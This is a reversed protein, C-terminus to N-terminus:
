GNNDDEGTEYMSDILNFLDNELTDSNEVSPVKEEQIVEEEKKVPKISNLEKEIDDLIQLTSTKEMEDLLVPKSEEVDEDNDLVNDNHEDVIEEVNSNDVDYEEQPLDVIKDVEVELVPEEQKKGKDLEVSTFDKTVEKDQAETEKLAEKELDEIAGYAKKRVDDLSVNKEEPVVEIESVIEEETKKKKIPTVKERKMGNKKDVIDEKTYNVNLVGFVPSLVPSPKFKKFEGDQKKMSDLSNTSSFNSNAKRAYDNTVSSSKEIERDKAKEENRTLSSYSREFEKEDFSQFITKKEEKPQVVEKVEEVPKNEVRNVEELIDKDDFTAELDRNIRVRSEENVRTIPVDNDVEREKIEVKEQGLDNTEKSYDPPLTVDDPDEEFLIKKINDLLKM